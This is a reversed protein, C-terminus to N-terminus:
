SSDDSLQTQEDVTASHLQEYTLHVVYKLNAGELNAGELNAGELNAGELDAGMLYAGRLDLKQNPHEEQWQALAGVDHLLVIEVHKPDAM